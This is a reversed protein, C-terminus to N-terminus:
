TFYNCDAPGALRINFHGGVLYCRGVRVGCRRRSRSGGGGGMGEERERGERGGGWRHLCAAKLGDQLGEGWGNLLGILARSCVHACACAGGCLARTRERVGVWVWVWGWKSGKAAAAELERRYLFDLDRRRCGFFLWMSRAANRSIILM